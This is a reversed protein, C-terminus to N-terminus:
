RRFDARSPRTSRESAAHRSLAGRPRMTARIWPALQAGRSGAICHDPWLVQERGYLPIVDFPRHPPHQSAFSVHRPPRWDQTAVVVGFKGSRMLAAVPALIEDGGAV